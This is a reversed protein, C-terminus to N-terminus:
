RIQRWAKTAAAKVAPDSDEMALRVLHEIRKFEPLVEGKPALAGLADLGVVRLEPDDTACAMLCLPVIASVDVGNSVWLPILMLLAEKETPPGGAGRVMAAAAAAADYGLGIVAGSGLAVKTHTVDYDDAKPM